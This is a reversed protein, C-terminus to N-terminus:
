IILCCFPVCVAFLWFDHFIHLSRKEIIWPLLNTEVVSLSYSQLQGFTTYLHWHDVFLDGREVPICLEVKLFTTCSGIGKGHPINIILVWLSFDFHRDKKRNARKTIARGGSLSDSDSVSQMMINNRCGVARFSRIATVTYLKACWMARQRRLYWLHASCAYWIGHM